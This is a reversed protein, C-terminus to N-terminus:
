LEEYLKRYEKQIQAAEDFRGEETLRFVEAMLVPQRRQRSWFVAREIVVTLSLLSCILLPWM